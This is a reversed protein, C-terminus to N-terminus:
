DAQMDILGIAAALGCAPRHYSGSQQMWYRYYDLSHNSTLLLEFPSGHNKYLGRPQLVFSTIAFTPLNNGADLM